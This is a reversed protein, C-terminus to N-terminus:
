GALADCVYDSMRDFMDHIPKSIDFTIEKNIQALKDDISVVKAKQPEVVTFQNQEIQKLLNISFDQVADVMQMNKAATSLLTDGLEEGYEYERIIEKYILNSMLNADLATKETQSRM